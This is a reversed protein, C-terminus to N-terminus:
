VRGSKTIADEPAWGATLRYAARKYERSRSSKFFDGLSATQGFATVVLNSRRNNQQDKRTAWRCNDKCYGIDNNDREITHSASPREGMDEFFGEFSSWKECVGIKRAGYNKYHESNQDTCRRWIGKWVSYEASYRRGHTKAATKQWGGAAKRCGCSKAAGSNLRSALVHKSAGCKCICEWLLGEGANRVPGVVILDTFKKGSLDQM